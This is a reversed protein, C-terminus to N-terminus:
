YNGHFKAFAKELVPGWIAGDAGVEAYITSGGDKQLPLYDDIIIFRMM